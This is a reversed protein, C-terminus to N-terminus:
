VVGKRLEDLPYFTDRWTVGGRRLVVFASHLLLYFFVAAGLANTFAYFLSVRCYRGGYACLLIPVLVSIGALARASGHALLLGLYPLLHFIFLLALNFFLLSLCYNCGAFTNKTFGAVIGRLGPYCPMRVLEDSWAIGSRFGGQKVLKGLKVDEVVEMALRRHTGIAEYTARRVLQFAGTGAYRRSKPNSVEWAELWFLFSLLWWPVVAKEWFGQLDISFIVSLHDWGEHRVLALARRLLTPAWRADADAIALWEGGAHQYAVTLAHPKGLWGPPLEQLHIVKLRQDRRAIDDLIQPTADTSRDNVVIIQYDPYDQALLTPLAQPLGTAEDRAAVLISVRPCEADPLAGVRTLHPVRRMGWLLRVAMTVWLFTLTEWFYGLLAAVLLIAFGLVRLALTPDTSM